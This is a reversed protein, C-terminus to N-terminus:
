TTRTPIATTCPSSGALRPIGDRRVHRLVNEKEVHSGIRISNCEMDLIKDLDAKYSKAKSHGRQDVPQLHLAHRTHLYTKNNLYWKGAGDKEIKKIGFTEALATFGPITFEASYLTPSAM